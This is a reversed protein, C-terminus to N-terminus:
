RALKWTCISLGFVPMMHLKYLMSSTSSDWAEAEETDPEPVAFALFDGSTGLSEDELLAAGLGVTRARGPSGGGIKETRPM